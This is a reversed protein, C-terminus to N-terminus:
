QLGHQKEFALTMALLEEDSIEPMAKVNTKTATSVQAATIFTAQSTERTPYRNHQESSNHDIM